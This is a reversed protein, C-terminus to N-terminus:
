GGYSLSQMLRDSRGLMLNKALFFIKLLSHFAKQLKMAMQEGLKTPAPM